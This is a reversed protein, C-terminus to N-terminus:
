HQGGCLCASRLRQVWNGACSEQTWSCCAGYRWETGRILKEKGGLSIEASFWSEMTEGARQAPLAAKQGLM